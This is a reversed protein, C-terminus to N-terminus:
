KASETVAPPSIVARKNSSTEPFATAFACLFAHMHDSDLDEYNLIPRFLAAAQYDTLFDRGHSLCAELQDGIVLEGSDEAATLLDVLERAAQHTVTGGDVGPAYSLVEIQRWLDETRVFLVKRSSFHWAKTRPPPAKRLYEEALRDLLYAVRTVVIRKNVEPLSDFVSPELVSERAM